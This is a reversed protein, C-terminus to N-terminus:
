DPLRHLTVSPAEGFIAQYAGAFRGFHWFGFMTAVETVTTDVATNLTLARRALHLRRLQLYQKPSIGLQEQCCLRLTREPVRIAECIEPVYIPRYPNDELLQHFRRMITEHCGQAWSAENMDSHSLCGILSEMLSQELARAVEAMALVHPSQEALRTAEAHLQRLRTMASVPPTVIIPSRPPTLDCGGVSSGAAVLAEVPLSMAAWHAEDPTREYYSHGQSHRIIGRYPLLAGQAILEQGPRTLFKFFARAQTQTAHKIRPATEHVQQLWLSELEVRVVRTKFPTRGTPTLQVCIAAYAAEAQGPELYTRM